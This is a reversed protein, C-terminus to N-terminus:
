LPRISSRFVAKRVASYRAVQYGIEEPKNQWGGEGHGPMKTNHILTGFPPVFMGCHNLPMAISAIAQNAGDEDCVAIIGVPRDRLAWPKGSYDWFVEDIFRKTIWSVNFWHVPTSIILGDAARVKEKLSLAAFNKESLLHTATRLGEGQAAKLAGELLQFSKCQRGVSSGCFGLVLGRDHTGLVADRKRMAVEERSTPISKGADGKAVLHCDPSLINQRTAPNLKKRVTVFKYGRIPLVRGTIGIQRILSKFLLESVDTNAVEGLIGESHIFGTINGGPRPLGAVFGEGVPDSVVVFIIPITRTERQLAATVPTTHALIADPAL